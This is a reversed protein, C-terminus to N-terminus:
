VCARCLKAVERMVVVQQLKSPKAAGNLWRNATSREVMGATAVTDEQVIRLRWAEALALSFGDSSPNTALYECLDALAQRTAKTCDAYKTWLADTM